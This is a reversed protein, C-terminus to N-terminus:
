LFAYINFSKINKLCTDKPSIILEIYWVEQGVFPEIFKGNVPQQGLVAIRWTTPLKEPLTGWNKGDPSIRVSLSALPSCNDEDYAIELRSIKVVKGLDFRLSNDKKELVINQISEEQWPTKLHKDDNKWVKSVAVNDVKIEYVPNIFNELYSDYYSRDAVGEYFLTIAYENQRLYGSRYTNSFILDPRFWFRPINPMLGHALVVKSEPEAHQNIWLVGQRYAAGFSNGWSPLDREKAGGLGGILSNFYVNENPHIQILKITIPLFAMLVIASAIITRNLGFKIFIHNFLDRIVLGGLGAFIALAPIYEMIQRIGGYITTGPLTVRGVPVALWLLFLLSIKDKEGKLRFIVSLIGIVSFILIVLPTTFIIWQIPYTNIGLPGFFHPDINKTLGIGKYFKLIEWTRGLINPWLYPWSGIFILVGLVPAIFLSIIFKFNNTIFKKVSPHNRLYSNIALYLLWPFIVFFSFLINFKTGLALSFFVGSIIVWKWSKQTIGKWVCFLLFSWFVTEPIDKENNFHSESWFLPHLVLSLAAIFGAFRGFKEAVWFFILGVLISALLVSYVRYADIDNVLGMKQFLVYNFVSSFIDSLPPHGKGDHEMLWNFNIADIQYYSRRAFENNPINTDILLSEPKQWYIKSEPLDSYDKRGTLFYHLYAQGRPLHNITDWNIGYHPLTVLAMFFYVCALTFAILKNSIAM